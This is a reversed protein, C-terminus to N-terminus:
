QGCGLFDRTEQNFGTCVFSSSCVRAQKELLESCELAQQETVPFSIAEDPVDDDSSEFTTICTGEEANVILGFSLDFGANDEDRFGVGFPLGTPTRVASCSAGISDEDLDDFAEALNEGWCPCSRSPVCVFKGPM